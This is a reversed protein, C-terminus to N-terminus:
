PKLLNRYQEPSLRSTKQFIRITPHDFVSWTEEANEPNLVFYNKIEFKKIESFGLQGSFLNQYYLSSLPFDIGVQNKFIRRSPVLLYDSRSLRDILRPLFSPDDDLHYFDLNTIQLRHDTVPLNVVNGAESLVITDPPLNAVLWHSATLRIDPQCYIKLFYIGPVICIITLIIVITKSKIQSLFFVAFLPPLFFLPSMFRTWKVYLQGIYLFYVFSSFLIILIKKTFLLRYNTFLLLIFGISGFIFVPLGSSYPFIKTLQFLYPLSHLFQNTYFVKLRGTAVGTEYSLSSRFDSNGLITYPSFLIFFLLLCLSYHIILPLHIIKKKSKLFSILLVFFVPFTFILSTVKSALGIGGVLSALFLTRSDLKQFLRFSLYLNAAFVFILLSETTGFHALQILGPNFVLFLFFIRRFIKRSFLHKSILYFIAVSLVSFIASWFRLALVAQSFDPQHILPYLSFYALYLPFQGYAFFHPNFNGPKLQSVSIAM